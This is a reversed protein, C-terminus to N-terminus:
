GSKTAHIFMQQLIFLCHLGGTDWRPYEDLCLEADLHHEAEQISLGGEKVWEKTALSKHWM